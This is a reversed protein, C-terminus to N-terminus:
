ALSIICNILRDPLVPRGILTKPQIGANCRYNPIVM